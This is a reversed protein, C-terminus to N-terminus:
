KLLIMKKTDSFDGIKARYFYVGSPLENGHVDRGDWQVTYSGRQRTEDVLTKTLRGRLDFVQLLVPSNSEAVDYAISAVPNFPNPKSQSVTAATPGEDKALSAHTERRRVVELVREFEAVADPNRLSAIFEVLNQENFYSAVWEVEEETMRPSLPAKPSPYDCSHNWHDAWRTGDTGDVVGCGDYDAWWVKCTDEGGAWAMGFVAGDTGDVKCNGGGMEPSNFYSTVNEIMVEEYVVGCIKIAITPQADWGGARDVIIEAHGGTDTDADAVKILETEGAGTDLCCLRFDPQKYHSGCTTSDSRTFVMQIAERPFGEITDGDWDRVTVRATIKAPPVTADCYPGAPCFTMPRRELKTSDEPCPEPPDALSPDFLILTDLTCQYPDMGWCDSPWVGYSYRYDVGGAYPQWTPDTSHGPWRDAPPNQEVLNLNFVVAKVDTGFGQVFFSKSSLSSDIPAFSIITDILHGKMFLSDESVPYTIANVQVINGDQASDPFVMEKEFAFKLVHDDYSLMPDARFVIYDSSYPYLIINDKKGDGPDWETILSDKGISDYGVLYEPPLIRCKKAGEYIERFIGTKETASYASDQYTGFGLRGNGLTDNDVWLALSFENFLTRLREKGTLTGGLFDYANDGLLRSLSFMNITDQRVWDYVLDDDYSSTDGAFHQILYVGFLDMMHWQIHYDVFDPKESLILVPNGYATSYVLPHDYDDGALFEAIEEFLIGLSAALPPKSACLLNSRMCLRSFYHVMMVEAPKGGLNWEGNGDEKGWYSDTGCFTNFSNEDVELTDVDEVMQPPFFSPSDALYTDRISDGEGEGEFPDNGHYALGLYYDFSTTEEGTGGFLVFSDSEPDSVPTGDAFYNYTLQFDTEGFGFPNDEDVMAGAILTDLEGPRMPVGQYDFSRSLLLDLREDIGELQTQVDSDGSQSSTFQYFWRSRGTDRSAEAPVSWEGNTAKVFAGYYFKEDWPPASPLSDDVCSTVATEGSTFIVAASSDNPSIPYADERRLVKVTDLVITTDKQDQYNWTMTVQSDESQSAALNIPGLPFTRPGGDGPCGSLGLAACVDLVGSGFVNNPWSLGSADSCNGLSDGCSSHYPNCEEALLGDNRATAMLIAKADEPPIEPYKQRLLAIAGAVFPAAMSTGSLNARCSSVGDTGSGNLVSKICDFTDGEVVTYDCIDDNNDDYRTLRQAVSVVHSSPAVIEPKHVDAGPPIDGWNSPGRPSGEPGCGAHWIRKYAMDTYAIDPEVGGVAFVSYDDLVAKAPPSISTDAPLGTNEDYGANGAAFVVSIGLAEANEIASLLLPGAGAVWSCCIVDPVDDMTEDDGDPNAAWQFGEATTGGRTAIWKAKPAVGTIIGGDMITNSPDYGCMAGTVWTGHMDLASDPEPSPHTMCNAETWEYVRLSDPSEFDHEFDKWCESASVGQERGRWNGYLASCSSWVGTGILCVLTGDGNYNAAWAEPAGVDNLMWTYNANLGAAIQGAVHCGAAAPGCTDQKSCQVEEYSVLVPIPEISLEDWLYVTAVDPRMILSDIADSRIRAHIGDVIWFREYSEAIGMSQLRNLVSVLNSQGREATAKLHNAVSSYREDLGRGSISWDEVYVESSDKETMHVFVDIYDSSKASGLRDLLQESAV